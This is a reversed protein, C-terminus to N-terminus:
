NEVHQDLLRTMASSYLGALDDVTKDELAKLDCCLESAALDSAFADTSLRRWARRTTWPADLRGRKVPLTFRVVAHDSIMDGVRLESIVTKSRTIVLDLTHGANHTPETVHQVCGFSQLLETLRVQLDRKDDVHIYYLM